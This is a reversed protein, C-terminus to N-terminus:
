KYRDNSEQHNQWLGVQDRQVKSIGHSEDIKCVPYSKTFRGWQQKVNNKFRKLNAEIRDWNM